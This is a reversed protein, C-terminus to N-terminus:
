YPVSANLLVTDFIKTKDFITQFKVLPGYVSDNCLIIEDFINLTGLIKLGIKWSYFDYGVNERIIIKDCYKELKKREKNALDSTSVFIITNTVIKLEKLYYIVYDDVINQKDYHVFVAARNIM